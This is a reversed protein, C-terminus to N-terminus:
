ASIQPILLGIIGNTIWSSTSDPLRTRYTAWVASLEIIAVSICRSVFRRVIWQRTHFAGRNTIGSAAEPLVIGYRTPTLPAELSFKRRWRSPAEHGDRSTSGVLGPNGMNPTKLSLPCDLRSPLMM